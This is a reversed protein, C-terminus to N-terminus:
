GMDIKLKKLMSRRKNMWIIFGTVPLGTAILGGVFTIIKGLMGHWTGMHLMWILNEISETRYTEEPLQVEKGNHKSYALFQQDTTNKLAVKESAKLYYYGADKFYTFFQIENKDPYKEFTTEIIKHIPYAPKPSEYKTMNKKWNLRADGGFFDITFDTWSQFGVILGTLSLMLVFGLSYFGLIKHLDYNLRKSNSKWKILFSSQSHRKDWKKPLWIFFGTILAIIFVITSIDVIWAGPEHLLLSHHLHAFIFFFYITPDDKLIAGTYQDVYVMSLGRQKSYTNFRLSRQPDQYAVMYFPTTRDPYTQKLKELITEVPIKEHRVEKVYRADGASLEIIEDGFVVITGTLCIFFVLPASILGLWLHLKRLFIKTKLNM